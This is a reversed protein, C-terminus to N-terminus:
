GSKMKGFNASRVAAVDRTPPAVMAFPCCDEGGGAAAITEDDDFGLMEGTELARKLKSRYTEKWVAHAGQMARRHCGVMRRRFPPVHMMALTYLRVACLYLTSCVRLGARTPPHPHLPLRLADALPGGVFRRCQLSRFYFWRSRPPAGRQKRDRGAKLLHHAVEVSTDDPDLIHFIVSGLVSRSHLIPDQIQGAHGPGCPDLPRAPKNGTGRTSERADSKKEEEGDAGADVDSEADDGVCEYDHHGHDDVEVGLLWGIYRWLALYDEEERRSMGVGAVFQVGVIANTSFALLTAAMDEQNIPVGYRERDWEKKGKRRLLGRRVKSWCCDCCLNCSLSM